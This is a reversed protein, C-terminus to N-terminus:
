RVFGTSNILKEKMLEKKEESIQHITFSEDFVATNALQNERKRQYDQYTTIVKAPNGVAVSNDPISHTVVSGAGIIVNNGITVNPLVISGAGIFVDNGISVKGILTYGLMRKTSADHALIHVRPALTVRDGITILWCHGPDIICEGMVHCDKGIQLGNEIAIELQSRDDINLLHKRIWLYTNLIFKM